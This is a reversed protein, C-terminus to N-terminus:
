RAVAGQPARQMRAAVNVTRVGCEDSGVPVISNWESYGEARITLAYAGEQFGGSVSNEFQSTAVADGDLSLESDFPVVPAGSVSDIVFAHM